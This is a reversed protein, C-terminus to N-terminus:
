ELCACHLPLQGEDDQIKATNSTVEIIKRLIKLPPMILSIYHLPTANSSDQFNAVAKMHDPNRKHKEFWLEVRKFSPKKRNIRWIEQILDILENSDANDPM